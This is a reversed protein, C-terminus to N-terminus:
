RASRAVSPYQAPSHSAAASARHCLMSITRISGLTPRNLCYLSPAARRTTTQRTLPFWKSAITGLPPAWWSAAAAGACAPLTSPAPLFTKPRGDVGEEADLPGTAAPRERSEPAFASFTNPLGAAALLRRRAHASPPPPPPAFAPPQQMVHAPPLAHPSAHIALSFTHETGFPHAQSAPFYHAM